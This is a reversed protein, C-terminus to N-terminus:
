DIEGKSEWWRDEWQENIDKVDREKLCNGGEKNKPFTKLQAFASCVIGKEGAHDNQEGHGWQRWWQHHSKYEWRDGHWQGVEVTVTMLM